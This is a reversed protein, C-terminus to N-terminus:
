KVLIKQAKGNSIVINLGRQLKNTRVGSLSYIGDPATSGAKVDSIGEALPGVWGDNNGTATRTLTWGGVSYWSGAFVKETKLAESGCATGILLKHDTVVLDKIELHKWGRGVGGNASYIANYYAYSEDNQDLGEDIIKKYAEEWIPGRTDSAIQEESNDDIYYNLPIEVYATDASVATFLYAGEAPTRAYVGLTYTGNPLSTVLQTAIYDTLGNSNYSDIYRVAGDGTFWQGAGTNNNGNGKSFTWGTEAQLMPNIIFATFDTASADDALNQMELLNLAEKLKEVFKNVTAAEQMASLLVEKQSNMLAEVYNKGTDSAKAAAEAADNYVPAYTNTYNKTLNVQADIDKYTATDCAIWNMAYEYAFKVIANAAGYAGEQALSDRLVPLTKGDQWYEAYKDESKQAEEIAAALATIAEDVNEAGTYKAISDNLAKKDAAFHMGDALLRAADLKSQLMAAKEEASVDGYYNLKFNTACFWGSQDSAGEGFGEAGITLKGDLVLIKETTLTTWAGMGITNDSSDWNGETLPESVAKGASSQAFVRQTQNVYESQTILDAEITYYGNPLELDQAVAVRSIGQKWANWASRSQVKKVGQDGGDDGARYWSGAELYDAPENGGYDAFGEEVVPEMGAKIFWPNKVLLTYDAPAEASATQSFLYTAIAADAEDAAGLIQESSGNEYYDSIRNFAEEFVSKGPFDYKDLIAELRAVIADLGEAAKIVTKFYEVKELYVKLGANKEDLTGDDVLDSLDNRDKAIEDALQKLNADEALQSLEGLSDALANLDSNILEEPDADAIKYLKIGDICVWPHSGSGANPDGAQLGFQITFSSTPTFEFEHKTWSTNTISEGTDDKFVDRRCTIQSLDIAKKSSSPNVNITWYELRYVACPLTVEQRYTFSNGWGARLYLAGINDETNYEDPRPPMVFYTSGDDAVPIAEAGLDYPLTGVYTWECNANGVMSSPLVGEWGKIMGVFGNTAEFTRGDPRSKPTSPNVTAYRSGDAALKYVSRQTQGNTSVLEKTSGDAQWTLDEDFGANQIYSTVDEEQAFSPMAMMAGMAFLLIKKM